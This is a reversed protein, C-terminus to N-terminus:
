AATIDPLPTAPRINLPQLEYSVIDGLIRHWTTESLDGDALDSGRTHDEGPSPARSSAGCGLYGAAGDREVARVSYVHDTTYFRITKSVEAPKASAAVEQVHHKTTGFRCIDREVWSMFHDITPM